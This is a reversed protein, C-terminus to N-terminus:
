YTTQFVCSKNEEKGVALSLTSKKKNKTNYDIWRVVLAGQLFSQSSELSRARLATLTIQYTPMRKYHYGKNYNM